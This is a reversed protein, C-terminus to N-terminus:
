SKALAACGQAKLSNQSLVGNITIRLNLKTPM